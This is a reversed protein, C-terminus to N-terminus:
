FVTDEQPADTIFVVLCLAADIALAAICRYAHRVLQQHPLKQPDRGDHLGLALTALALDLALSFRCPCTPFLIMTM